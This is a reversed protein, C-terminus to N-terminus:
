SAHVSLVLVANMLEAKNAKRMMGNGLLLASVVTYLEYLIVDEM